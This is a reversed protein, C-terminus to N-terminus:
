SGPQQVAVARCIADGLEKLQFPKSLFAHPFEHLRRKMIQDLDYGSTMVIPLAPSIKRLAATTEWGDMGPMTLDCLVCSIKNKHKQLIQAADAGDKAAIVNYGMHTLMSGTMRRMSIEDEVLLITESENAKVQGHITDGRKTDRNCPADSREKNEEPLVPIFLRFISGRSTDSEVSIVGLHARAIGLAVALGLGRGTFKSSFFPDFIKEIHDSKIGSGNDAVEICAYDTEQMQCGVPFCQSEPIKSHSVTKVSLRIVGRRDGLAEWANTLLNTLAQMFLKENANVFPGGSPFNTELDFGIPIIDRIMKLQRHLIMSLDIRELKVDSLGLYTLM